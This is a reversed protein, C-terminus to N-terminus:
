TAKKPVSAWSLGTVTRSIGITVIGSTAVAMRDTDIPM